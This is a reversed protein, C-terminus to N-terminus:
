IATLKKSSYLCYLLFNKLAAYKIEYVVSSQMKKNKQFIPKKNAQMTFKYLTLAKFPDEIFDHSKWSSDSFFFTYINRILLLLHPLCLKDIILEKKRWMTILLLKQQIAPLPTFISDLM